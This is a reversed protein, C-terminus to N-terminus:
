HRAHVRRMEDRYAQPTMGVIRQFADYFRSNASFGVTLAIDLISRNTDSLLARAHHIRMSNVYQKISTRMVKRFQNMAYNPHLRAYDAIDTAKIPKDYNGAIFELMKQVNRIQPDSRNIKHEPNEDAELATEWGYYSIRRLMLTIEDAVLQNLSLDDQHFDYVWQEIQGLGVKYERSSTVVAGHLISNFLDDDLPLCLFMQIPINAIMMHDCQYHEILRHPVAAWFMTLHNKKAVFERGNLLYRVDSEFPINLEIHGHWHYCRMNDPQRAEIFIYENRNFVSLPSISLEEIIGFDKMM